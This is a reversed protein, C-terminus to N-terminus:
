RASCRRSSARISRRAPRDRAERELEALFEAAARGGPGAWLADGCLAQATERLCALLTPRAAARRRRLEGRDPRAAGRVERGRVDGRMAERTATALHADIGTSGRRRARGACVGTSRACATSGPSGRRAARVLPHKLLALLALPAFRQAAAEALALLLTGPPLIPCRGGPREDIAIGWRGCIRRWGGRWRAIPRSWRPPGGRREGAGRAAGARDGAGGGGPHRTRRRSVGALRREDAALTTWKGTFDAPALANAIARGRARDADDGRRRRAM